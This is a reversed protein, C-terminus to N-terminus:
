KLKSNLFSQYDVLETLSEFYNGAKKLAIIENKRNELDIEDQIFVSVKNLSIDLYYFYFPRFSQFEFNNKHM